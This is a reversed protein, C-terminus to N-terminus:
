RTATQTVDGSRPKPTVRLTIATSAQDVPEASNVEARATVFLTQELPAAKRDATITFSRSDVQETILIGNLGIDPITVMLPLNLVSLPV